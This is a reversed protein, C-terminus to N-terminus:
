ESRLAEMPDIRAARRAPLWLALLGVLTTTAAVTLYVVPNNMVGTGFLSQVPRTLLFGGVLGIALGIAIQRSGQVFVLRLVQGVTAGLAMRVGFERTRRSVALSTVGYVGISGLFLTVLAFIGAM